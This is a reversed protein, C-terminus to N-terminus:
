YVLAIKGITRGSEIRAHAERLTAAALGDLTERRTTRLTGAAVLDAVRTLIEGQRAIDPTGYAPRTFMLEWVFGASKRQLKALDVPARSGVIACITGQPAILEAMADWHADTDAANFILDVTACGAAGASAVLDRHDVVAHAGLERCWGETEPRSATAVVELDTLRRAIQIAISGVGGAGGVILLRRGAGGGEAVRLRDFLGEWATLATLPLVAADADSVGAPARGVIRHDVAQLEANAGPRGIDGAYWVRDGAAFDAAESGVAEVTGVADFGLVVPAPPPGAAGARMRQKADVPNVSTAAVRVLLDLPGPEPPPLDLDELCAPDAVPLSRTLGVAKV